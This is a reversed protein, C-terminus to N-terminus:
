AAVFAAMAFRHALRACNSPGRPILTFLTAGPGTQVGNIGEVMGGSFTSDNPL